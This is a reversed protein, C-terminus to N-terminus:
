LGLGFSMRFLVPDSGLPRQNWIVLQYAGQIIPWPTGVMRSLQQMNVYSVGGGGIGFGPVGQLFLLQPDDYLSANTLTRTIPQPIVDIAYPPVPVKLTTGPPVVLLQSSFRARVPVSGMGVFAALKWSVFQQYEHLPDVRRATAAVSISDCVIPISQGFLFDTYFTTTVGGCRQTFKAIPESNGPNSFADYLRVLQVTVVQPPGPLQDLYFLDRDEGEQWFGTQPDGGVTRGFNPIGKLYGLQPEAIVKPKGLQQGRLDM